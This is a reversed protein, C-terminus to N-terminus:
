GKGGLHIPAGIPDLNYMHYGSAQLFSLQINKSSFDHSHIEIVIVSNAPLSPDM